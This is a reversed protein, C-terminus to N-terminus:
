VPVSLQVLAAVHCCDWGLVYTREAIMKYTNTERDFSDALRTANVKGRYAFVTGTAYIWSTGAAPDAGAPSTGPYGGGVAVKNGNSTWLADGDRRILGWADFTPFARQPIHIVGVGNYCDGLQGEVTGLAEAADMAATSGTIVVAATQLTAGYTDLQAADAALHPWVVPKGGAVGTWFGREVLWPEARGLADAARGEPDDNGVASCDFRVYTTFPTAGRVLRDVNATKTAPEPPSGIGTVSICEDYTTGGQGNLCTTEYTVGNQWHPDGAEPFDVVKLLGYSLPTFVPPDVNLRPGAM